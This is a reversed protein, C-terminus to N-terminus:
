PEPTGFLLVHGCAKCKRALLLDPLGFGRKRRRPDIPAFMLDGSFGPLRGEVFNTGGCVPCHHKLQEAEADTETDTAVWDGQWRYEGNILLYTGSELGLERGDFEFSPGQDRTEGSLPGDICLPM